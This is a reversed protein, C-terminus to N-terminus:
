KVIVKSVSSGQRRIYIGPAPDNVRIGQLNFYEVPAESGDSEISDIGSATVNIFTTMLFLDPFAPNTMVCMIHSFPALFTTIGNEITYEKGEILSEGALQNNEDLYPSDIFWTYTTKNSDVETQSSLDVKGDNVTIEIPQQVFYDYVYYESRVPPLTAFSLRNGGIALVRLNALSTVDISSLNNDSLWLQIIEPIGKLNIDELKNGMLNLEWMAPNDLEVHSINNNPAHVIALNKFKSLDLRDLDNDTLILTSLDTYNHFRETSVIKNGSLNLERLGPSAPLLIDEENLQSESCTFAILGKMKSADMDKLAVDSLSFVTLGEDEDYSYCRVKVDKSTEAKFSIYNEALIYQELNGNGDWDIYVANGAKAATLTITATDAEVTTFTAFLNTPMEAAEVNSTRIANEGSFQPFAPHSILCYIDGVSTDTFSFLGKDGSIQESTLEHGDSVSRWSYSTTKGDVDLWESSLNISPAKTPLPYEHQPAYIYDAVADAAPLAPLKFDNLSLNLSSLPTYAPLYFEVLRNDSADLTTLAECDQLSLTTLNNHSVDLSVLNTMSKMPVETLQNNSLDLNQITRHDNLGLQSIKNDSLDIDSLVNKDYGKIDTALDIATFSNGSLNLYSLCRNWKLDIRALRCGTIELEGLSRAASLDTRLLSVDRMALATLDSGEPMYVTVTGNGKRTGTVNNQSPIGSTTATFDTLTGDGFDVSFTVPQETTAGAIGVAMEFSSVTSSLAFIATASPKGFDNADKVVFRTTTMPYDPLASNTFSVYLSDSTEKLLTLKGNNYSYSDRDLPILNLPESEDTVYVTATTTSNPRNVKSSFDIETGVPYSRDVPIPMQSYYYENFTNRSDPITAFCMYNRSINVSYLDPNNSIDISTLLNGACNLDILAPCGSIDLTKFLNDSCLFRQLHPKSGLNLETLRVDSNVVGSHTCYFETLYPNNTLDIEKIRTESINLIMLKPNKSVDLVEVPTVDISIRMLEPCGTPDCVRLDKNNWSDFSALAPYDRLSFSQDMHDIISMSLITLDPKDPGVILPTEASFTNNSVYLAQLKHMHSLDLGLLENYQLNLIEVNTLEPFSIDTIYCGEMDIYDIKAPDGYIRVMGDKNVSGSIVTGKIDGDESSFVAPEVEVETPGFGFDIDYVSKETTGLTIHFANEVGNLEYLTTHFEIIPKDTGAGSASPAMALMAGALILYHPKM